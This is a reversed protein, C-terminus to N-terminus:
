KWFPPNSAHCGSAVLAALLLLTALLWLMTKM